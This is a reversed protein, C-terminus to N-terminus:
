GVCELHLMRRCLFFFNNGGVGTSSNYKHLAIIVLTKICTLCPELITTEECPHHHILFAKWLFLLSAQPWTRAIMSLSFFLGGHPCSLWLIARHNSSLPCNTSHPQMTGFKKGVCAAGFFDICNWEYLLLISLWYAERLLNVGMDLDKLKCKLKTELAMQQFTLHLNQYLLTVIYM